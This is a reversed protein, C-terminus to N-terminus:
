SQWEASLSPLVKVIIRTNPVYCVSVLYHQIYHAMLVAYSWIELEEKQFTFM